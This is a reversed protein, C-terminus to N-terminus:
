YKKVDNWSTFSESLFPIKILDIDFCRLDSYRAIEAKRRFQDAPYSRRAPLIAALPSCAAADAPSCLSSTSPRTGSYRPDANRFPYPRWTEAKVWGGERTRVCTRAKHCRNAPTAERAGSWGKERGCGEWGRVDHRCVWGCTCYARWLRYTLTAKSM